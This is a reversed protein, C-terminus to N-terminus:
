GLERRFTKHSAPIDFTHRLFLVLMRRCRNGSGRDLGLCVITGKHYVVNVVSNLHRARPYRQLFLDKGFIPYFGLLEVCYDEPSYYHIM